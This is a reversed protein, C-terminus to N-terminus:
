VVRFSWTNTRESDSRDGYEPKFNAVRINASNTYENRGCESSPDGTSIPAFSGCRLGAVNRM